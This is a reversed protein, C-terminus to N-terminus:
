HDDLAPTVPEKPREFWHVKLLSLAGHDPIRLHRTAPLGKNITRGEVWEFVGAVEVCFKHGVYYRGHESMAKKLRKISVMDAGAGYSVVQIGDDPCHPDFLFTGHRLDTSYQAHVRVITGDRSQSWNSLVCVSVSDVQKGTAPTGGCESALGSPTIILALFGVMASLFCRMMFM